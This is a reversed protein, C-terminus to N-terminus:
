CIQRKGYWICIEAEFLRQFAPELENIFEISKTTRNHRTLPHFSECYVCIKTTQVEPNKFSWICTESEYLRQFASEIQVILDSTTTARGHRSFAQAACARSMRAAAWGSLVGAGPDPCATPATKRSEVRTCWHMFVACSGSLLDGQGGCRFIYICNVSKCKIWQNIASNKFLYFFSNWFSMTRNIIKFFEALAIQELM